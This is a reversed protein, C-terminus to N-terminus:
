EEDFFEKAEKVLDTCLYVQSPNRLYKLREWLTLHPRRHLEPSVVAV